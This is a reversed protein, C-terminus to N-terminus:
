HEDLSPPKGTTTRRLITHLPTMGITCYTPGMDDGNSTELMSIKLAFSDCAEFGLECRYLWHKFISMFELFSIAKFKMTHNKGIEDFRTSIRCVHELIAYTQYSLIELTNLYFSFPSNGLLWMVVYCLFMQVLKKGFPSKFICTKIYEIQLDM